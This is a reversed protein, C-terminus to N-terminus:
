PRLLRYTPLEGKGKVAIMRPGELEFRDRLRRYTSATVIIEGPAAHAQM